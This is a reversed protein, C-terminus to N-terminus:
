FFRKAEQLYFDYNRIYDDENFSDSALVLLIAGESFDFMERWIMPGLYLGEAPNKLEVIEEEDPTKLKIKLSGNLCILVQHLRRHAHHGRSMTPEVGFIYYVRKVTFPTDVCSEIPVLHGYQDNFHKFKVRATNYMKTGKGKKLPM